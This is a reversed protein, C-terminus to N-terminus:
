GLKIKQKQKSEQQYYESKKSQTIKKGLAKAIEDTIASCNKGKFGILDISIEGNQDIIVEIETAM